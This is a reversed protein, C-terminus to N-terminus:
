IPSFSCLLTEFIGLLQNLVMHVSHCKFKTFDLIASNWSAVNNRKSFKIFTM